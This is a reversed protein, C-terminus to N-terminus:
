EDTCHHGTVGTLTATAFSAHLEDNTFIQRIEAAFKPVNEEWVPRIPPAFTNLLREGVLYGHAKTNELRGTHSRLRNLSRLGTGFWIRSSVRLLDARETKKNSRRSRAGKGSM